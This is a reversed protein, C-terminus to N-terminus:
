LPNLDTMTMLQNYESETLIKNDLMYKLQQTGILGLRTREKLTEFEFVPATSSDLTATKYSQLMLETLYQGELKQVRSLQNIDAIAKLTDNTMSDFSMLLEDAKSNAELGLSVGKDEQYVIVSWLGNKKTIAGVKTYGFHKYTENKSDVEVELTITTLREKDFLINDTDFVIFLEDSDVEHVFTIELNNSASSNVYSYNFETGDTLILRPM